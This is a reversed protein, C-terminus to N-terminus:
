RPFPPARRSMLRDETLNKQKRTKVMTHIERGKNHIVM